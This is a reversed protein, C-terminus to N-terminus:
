GFHVTDFDSSVLRTNVVMLRNATLEKMFQQFDMEKGLKGCFTMGKVGSSLM